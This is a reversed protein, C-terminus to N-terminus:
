RKPGELVDDDPQRLAALAEEASIEGRELRDLVGAAGARPAKEEVARPEEVVEAFDLRGALRNLRAKITPYSVGFWREMQKISGHCHIFAAVFAQDDADLLALPPPAFAGEIAIGDGATRVREVIFDQGGTLQTLKRWDLAM